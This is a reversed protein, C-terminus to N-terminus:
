RASVDNQFHKNCKEIFNKVLLETQLDTQELGEFMKDRTQEAYHLDAFGYAIGYGMKKDPQWEQKTVGEEPVVISKCGCIAAYTSLMSKTDYSIFYETKNFIEAIKKHPLKDVILANRLDETIKRKRGKSILYCAGVRKGFNTQKYIDTMLYPTHLLNESNVPFDNGIFAPQFFFFLENKGYHVQKNHFGPKHLLWRVVKKANLPNGNISEPYIAIADNLLNFDTLLPTNFSDYFFSKSNPFLLSFLIRFAYRTYRYILKAPNFSFDPISYDAFYIFAQAGQKRLLHCLHHLVIAGGSKINFRPTYVIYINDKDRQTTM